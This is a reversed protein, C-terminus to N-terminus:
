GSLVRVTWRQCVTEVFLHGFGGSTYTKSGETRVKNHEIQIEQFAGNGTIKFNGGGHDAFNRCDITWEIRWTSPARFGPSFATPSSSAIEEWLVDYPKSTPGITSEPEVTTPPAQTTPPVTTTTNPEGTADRLGLWGVLAAVAAVCIVGALLFSWRRYFPADPEMSM